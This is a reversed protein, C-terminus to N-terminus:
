NKIFPRSVSLDGEVIKLYYTGSALQSVDLTTAYNGFMVQTGAADFVAIYDAVGLYGSISIKSSTPNPYLNIEANQLRAVSASVGEVLTLTDILVNDGATTGNNNAVLVAAYIKVIGTGKAPATWTIDWTRSSSGSNSAAKHTARQGGSKINVDASNSFTGLSKGL